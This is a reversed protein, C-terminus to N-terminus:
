KAGGWGGGEGRIGYVCGHWEKEKIYNYFDVNYGSEQPYVRTTQGLDIHSCHLSSICNCVESPSRLTM